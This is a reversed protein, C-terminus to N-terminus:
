KLALRIRGTGTQESTISRMIEIVAKGTPCGDEPRRFHPTDRRGAVSGVSLDDPNSRDIVQLGM